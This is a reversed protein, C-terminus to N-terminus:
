YLIVLVWANTTAVLRGASKFMRELFDVNDSCHWVILSEIARIM